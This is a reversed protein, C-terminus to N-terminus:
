HAERFYIGPKWLKTEKNTSVFNTPGVLIAPEGLAGFLVVRPVHEDGIVISVNPAYGKIDAVGPPLNTGRLNLYFGREPPHQNLLNTAWEQLSAPDIQRRVKWEFEKAHLWKSSGPAFLLALLIAAIIAATYLAAKAKISM